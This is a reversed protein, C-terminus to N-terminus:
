SECETEETLAKAMNTLFEALVYVPPYGEEYFNWVVSVKDGHYKVGYLIPHGPKIHYDETFAEPLYNEYYFRVSHKDGIESMLALHDETLDSM